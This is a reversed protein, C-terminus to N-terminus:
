LIGAGAAGHGVSLAGRFAEVAIALPQWRSGQYAGQLWREALTRKAFSM